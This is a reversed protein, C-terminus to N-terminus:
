EKKRRKKLRQEIYKVDLRKDRWTLYKGFLWGGGLVLPLLAFLTLVGIYNLKYGTGSIYYDLGHGTKVKLYLRIIFGIIGLVALCGIIGNFISKIKPRQWKM